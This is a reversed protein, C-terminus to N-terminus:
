AASHRQVCDVALSRGTMEAPIPLRMLALLTPAIDSLRGDQLTLDGAGVLIAPVLNTTHATHSGGTVPDRMLECNGHDATVFVAGGRAQAAPVIKALGLDVAEVAKIVASLSGTHGVMDPNPFNLVILDYEASGIAELARETLEPASMGPQLDYTAVKPSPVM